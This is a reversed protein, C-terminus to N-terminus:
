YSIVKKRLSDTLRLRALAQAIRAGARGDGYPSRGGPRLRLRLAATLTRKLTAPAEGCHLVGKGGALRGSQRDGVNVVPTGALPAEILGASSNGILVRCRLLLRLFEDRPLSKHIVCEANTASRRCAAHLEIAEIVGDCGRDSNPYVICRRLGAASVADLIAAMTRREVAKGRGCPHQVVLALPERRPPRESLLERLRDLGPAGAVIVRERQEGMRIIRRAADASAPFHVHALKTIAHRIADDIDGPAVDGGHIHALVRGTASVALAAALAEVRDGLVLVIDTQAREFYAAMGRVGRALGDAQDLPRDDGRQMPILAAIRRGDREIERRTLGFRPLLHMGTVVLQLDLAPNSEIAGLVSQLLGYEARTGTVVAVRKHM